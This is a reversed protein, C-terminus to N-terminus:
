LLQRADLSQGEEYYCRRVIKLGQHHHVHADRCGKHAPDLCLAAVSVRVGVFGLVDEDPVCCIKLDRSEVEFALLILIDEVM